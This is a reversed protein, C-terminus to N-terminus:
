RDVDIAGVEEVGWLAFDGRPELRAVPRGREDREDAPAPPLASWAVGLAAALLLWGILNSPKM